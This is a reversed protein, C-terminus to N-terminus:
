SALGLIRHAEHPKMNRIEEDAIGLQRLKSKQAQTIFLSIGSVAHIEGSHEDGLDQDRIPTSEVSTTTKFKRAFADILQDLTEIESRDSELASLEAAHRRLMEERRGKLQEKAAELDAHSLEDWMPCSRWEEFETLGANPLIITLGFFPVEVKAKPNTWQLAIRPFRQRWDVIPM